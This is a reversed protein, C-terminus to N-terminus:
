LNRRTRRFDCRGKVGSNKMLEVQFKLDSVMQDLKQVDKSLSELKADTSNNEASVEALAEETANLKSLLETM